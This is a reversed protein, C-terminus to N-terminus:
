SKEMRRVRKGTPFNVNSKIEFSNCYRILALYPLPTMEIYHLDTIKVHHEYKLQDSIKSTILPEPYVRVDIIM